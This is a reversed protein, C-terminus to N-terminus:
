DQSGATDDEQSTELRELMEGKAAGSRVYKTLDTSTWGEEEAMQLAISRLAPPLKAVAIHHSWSLRPNCEKAPFKSAIAICRQLLDPSWSGDTAQYVDDGHFREGMVILRGIWWYMNRQMWAIQSIAEEFDEITPPRNTTVNVDVFSFPGIKFPKDM